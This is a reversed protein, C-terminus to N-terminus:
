INKESEIDTTNLLGTNSITSDIIPNKTSSDIQLSKITKDRLENAFLAIVQEAESANDISISKIIEAIVVPTYGLSFLPDGVFEMKDLSSRVKM